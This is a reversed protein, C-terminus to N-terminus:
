QFCVIVEMQPPLAIRCVADGRSPRGWGMFGGRVGRNGPNRTEAPILLPDSMNRNEYLSSRRQNSIYKASRFLHPQKLIRGFFKSPGNGPLLTDPLPRLLDIQASLFRRRYLINTAPAPFAANM